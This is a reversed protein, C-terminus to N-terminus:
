NQGKLHGKNEFGDYPSVSAVNIQIEENLM